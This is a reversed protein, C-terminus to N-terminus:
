KAPTPTSSVHGICTVYLLCYKPTLITVHKYMANYIKYAEYSTLLSTDACNNTHVFKPHIFM